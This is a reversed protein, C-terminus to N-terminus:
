AAEVLGLRVACRLCLLGVGHRGVEPEDDPYEECTDSIVGCRECEPLADDSPADLLADLDPSM